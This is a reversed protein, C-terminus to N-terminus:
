MIRIHNNHSWIDYVSYENGISKTDRLVFRIGSTSLSTLDDRYWKKKKVEVKSPHVDKGESHMKLLLLM